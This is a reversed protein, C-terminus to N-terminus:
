RVKCRRGKATGRHQCRDRTDAPRDRSLQDPRPSRFGRGGNRRVLRSSAAKCSAPTVVHLWQNLRPRKGCLAGVPGFKMRGEQQRGSAMTASPIATKPPVVISACPSGSMTTSCGASFESVLPILATSKPAIAAPSFEALTKVIRFEPVASRVLKDGSISCGSTWKETVTFGTLGTTGPPLVVKVTVNAGLLLPM